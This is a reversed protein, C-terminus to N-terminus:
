NKANKLINQVTFLDEATTVKINGYFAETLRVKCTGFNEMVMADDTINLPSKGERLLRMMKEYAELIARTEFVQPTQVIWVNDREPTNVVFSSGDSIKVTDKARVAAVSTKYKIVDDYLIDLLRQNICPRAGDHIFVYGDTQEITRLGSYVSEYRERGGAVVHRVKSFDNPRVIEEMCYEIDKKITVLIIEDIFPCEEFVSLSYYLVPRGNIQIYQKPIDSGMRTGKGGALVVAYNHGM